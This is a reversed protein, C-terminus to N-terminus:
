NVSGKSHFETCAPALPSITEGKDKRCGGDHGPGNHYNYTKCNGCIKILM